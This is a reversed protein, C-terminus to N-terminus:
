CVTCASCRMMFGCPHCILNVSRAELALKNCYDPTTWLVMVCLYKDASAEAGVLDV